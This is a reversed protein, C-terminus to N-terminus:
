LTATTSDGNAGAGYLLNSNVPNDASEPVYNPTNSHKLNQADGSLSLGFGIKAGDFLPQDSTKSPEFMNIGRQDWPRFYQLYKDQGSAITSSALALALMCCIFFHKRM